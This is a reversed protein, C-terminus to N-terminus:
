IEIFVGHALALFFHYPFTPLNFFFFLLLTIVSEFFYVRIIILDKTGKMKKMRNREKSVVNQEREKVKM